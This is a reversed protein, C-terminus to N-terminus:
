VFVAHALDLRRIADQPISTAWRAVEQRAGCIRVRRCIILGNHIQCAPEEM